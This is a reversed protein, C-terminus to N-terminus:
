GKDLFGLACQARDDGVHAKEDYFMRCGENLVRFGHDRLLTLVQVNKQLVSIEVPRGETENLARRLMETLEYGRPKLSVWPGFECMDKYKRIMLFSKITFMESSEIFFGLKEAIVLRILKSRDAGFAVRDMALLQNLRRADDFRSDFLRSDARKAKRRLRLFRADGVFGLRKYFSLNEKFCYLAVHRIHKRKLHNITREVLIRGIEKGRANRDVIVNGIWALTKGYSTSTALGLRRAGESAIFSGAPDLQLIRELDYRTVGWKEQSCLRIAFPVDSKHMSRVQLM